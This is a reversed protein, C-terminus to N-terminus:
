ETEIDYRELERELEECRLSHYQYERELIAKLDDVANEAKDLDTDIREIHQKAEELQAALTEGAPQVAQGTLRDFHIQPQLRLDAYHVGKFKKARKKAAKKAPKGTVIETVSEVVKKAKKKIPKGAKVAAWRKKQADAIRQRAEPSLVRKPKTEDAM